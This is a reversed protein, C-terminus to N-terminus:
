LARAIQKFQRAAERQQGVFSTENAYINQQVTLSSSSPSEKLATVAATFARVLQEEQRANDAKTEAFIERMGSKLRASMEAWLTDLPLIAEPGAEGVGQLGARTGFITPEDFIGGLANWNLSLSPIKIGWGVDNWVVDITPLKFDPLKWDFDFLDKFDEIKDVVWDYATTIPSKVIDVVKDWVDKVGTKVTDWADTIGTKGLAVATKITTTIGLWKTGADSKLSEWIDKAGTSIATWKESLTRKATEVTDTITSSIADWKDSAATKISDWTDSVATKGADWKSEVATKVTDVATSIATTIADWTTSATSSISDWTDSITKEAKDWQDEAWEKASDVADSIAGTIVDWTTTATDSISAWIGTVMDSFATWADSASTSISDWLGSFFDKVGNWIASIKDAIDMGFSEAIAKIATWVGTFSAQITAWVNQWYEGLSSLAVKLYELAGTFDGSFFAIIARFVNLVVDVASIIADIFPGIANLVGNTIAIVYAIVAAVAAGIAAVVPQIAAWINQFVDVVTAWLNTLAEKLPELSAKVSEFTALFMQKVPELASVISAWIENVKSRFDENTNYFYVFAAVLAAIAALVLGVPSTLAGLIGGLAKTSGGVGSILKAVPSLAKTVKGVTSVVKGALILAPSVAAVIAAIKVITAQMSPSLSSFWDGVAQIKGAVTELVPVLTELIEEGLVRGANKIKNFAVTADDSSDMITGYTDAVVDGYNEMSDALDDVSFRGERIATTMEAAGKTGFVEQAISLAETESSANKISGIVSNLADELPMSSDTLNTVARKLGAMATGTDVGALEMQGILNISEEANLGLEKFTASNAELISMLDSMSLGTRQGTATLMGLFAEADSADLGFQALLRATSDVADNVDTDNIKAFRLFLRSLNKLEDGTAGFRTNVEGVTTGADDMSVAMNTFLDVAVDEMDSLAEGSAGTKKAITDLGEDLEYFAAVSAAGLAVIPATVNKSLSEGADSIMEGVQELKEGVGELNVSLQYWGNQNNAIEDNVTKLATETQELKQKAADLKEKLKQTEAADEGKAVVSKQYAAELSEVKTKQLGIRDTLTAASEQLKTVVKDFDTVGTTSSKYQSQLKTMQKEFKSMGAGFKASDLSLRVILDGLEKGM